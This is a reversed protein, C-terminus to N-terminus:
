ATGNGMSWAAPTEPGTETFLICQTAGKSGTEEAKFRAGNKLLIDQGPIKENGGM